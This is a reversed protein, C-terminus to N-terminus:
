VALRAVQDALHVADIGFRPYHDGAAAGLESALLDAPNFAHPLYEPSIFLRAQHALGEPEFAASAQAFHESGEAGALARPREQLYLVSAVVEALVAGHGIGSAAAAVDAYRFAYLIGAVYTGLAYLFYHQGSDVRSIEAAGCALTEERQELGEVLHFTNFSVANRANLGIKQAILNDVPNSGAGLKLLM